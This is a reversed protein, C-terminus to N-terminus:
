GRFLSLSRALVFFVAILRGRLRHITKFTIMHFLATGVTTRRGVPPERCGLGAVHSRVPADSRESSSNGLAAGRVCNRKVASLANTGVLAVWYTSSAYEEHAMLDTWMDKDPTGTIAPPRGRWERNISSMRPQSSRLEQYSTRSSYELEMGLVYRTDQAKPRTELGEM